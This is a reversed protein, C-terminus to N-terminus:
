AISSSPCLASCLERENLGFHQLHASMVVVQCVPPPLHGLVRRFLRRARPATSLRAARGDQRCRQKPQMSGDFASRLRGKARVLAFASCSSFFRVHGARHFRAAAPRIGGSKKTVGACGRRSSGKCCDSQKEPWALAVLLPAGGDDHDVTGTVTLRRQSERRRRVRGFCEPQRDCGLRESSTVHLSSGAFPRLAIFLALPQATM